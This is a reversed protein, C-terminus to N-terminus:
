ETLLLLFDGIDIFQGSNLYIMIRGESEHRKHTFTSQQADLDIGEYGAAYYRGFGVQSGPPSVMFVYDTVGFVGGNFLDGVDYQDSGIGYAIRHDLFQDPTNLDPYLRQLERFNTVFVYQFNVSLNEGTEIELDLKGESLLLQNAPFILGGNNEVYNTSGASSYNTSPTNSFASVSFDIKLGDPLEGVFQIKSALELIEEIESRPNTISHAGKEDDCSIFVGVLISIFLLRFRM